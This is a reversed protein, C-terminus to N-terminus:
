WRNKPCGPPIGTFRHVQSMDANAPGQESGKGYDQRLRDRRRLVVIQLQNFRSTRQGIPQSCYSLHKGAITRRERHRASKQDTRTVHERRAVRQCLNALRNM